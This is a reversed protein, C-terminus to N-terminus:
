AGEAGAELRRNRLFAQISAVGAAKATFLSELHERSNVLGKAAILGDENVLVGYPLKGVHLAMGLEPGNVFPYDELGARAVLARQVAPEGDGVFVLACSEEKALAKAIPILRKCIPCDASVFMLLRMRRDPARGLSFPGGDLLRAAIRPAPDGVEPGGGMALAGVPAVREHLVGIQRALALVTFALGLVVVWLLVVSAVLLATM